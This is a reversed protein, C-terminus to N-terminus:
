NIPEWDIVKRTYLDLVKVTKSGVVKNKHPYIHCLATTLLLSVPASQEPELGLVM